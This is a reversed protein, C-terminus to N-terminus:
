AGRGLDRRVRWTQSGVLRKEHGHVVEVWPTETHEWSTGIGIPRESFHGGAVEEDDNSEEGLELSGNDLVTDGEDATTSFFTRRYFDETYAWTPTEFKGAVLVVNKSSTQALATITDAPLPTLLQIEGRVVDIGRVLGLGALRSHRPDLTSGSPNPIIPIGEPTWQIPVPDVVAKQIGHDETSAYSYGVEEGPPIGASRIVSLLGRFALDREIVVIALITGNTAEILLDPPPQYDYCFIGLFGRNKGRFSVKWPVFDTLPKPTWKPVHHPPSSAASHFYSMAQMSRFHLATRSTFESGQSPLATFPIQRCAGRLGEVAEEPGEQSMYIVESPQVKRVLGLLLDLGTGQIWGPTNIILPVKSGLTECYQDFLELACELFHDPDLAPTVSAIAHSRILASDGQELYAHCFPPALNPTTLRVLSIVGPVSFEPQGPDLDLFAISQWTRKRPSVRHTLLRNGLLRAFTSKGSGKPGCVLLMGPRSPRGPVLESIKKNWEAPSKLEQLVAKKPGDESTYIIQYTEDGGSKSRNAAAQPRSDNWLKGFAPSLTELARLGGAAPHPQLELTTNEVARLVPLAHCHPAHVWHTHDAPRLTAGAITLLGHSISLGYSGLLVLRQGTELKLTCRGASNKHFNGKNPRFTSYHIVTPRAESGAAESPTIGPVDTLPVYQNSSSNLHSHRNSSEVAIDGTSEASSARSLSVKNDLSTLGHEGTLRSSPDAPHGSQSRLLAKRAAFASILSKKVPEEELKRRKNPTM